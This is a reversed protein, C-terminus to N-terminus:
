EQTPKAELPRYVLKLAAAPFTDGCSPSWECRHSYGESDTTVSIVRMDPGGGKLRVIDNCRFELHDAPFLVAELAAIRPEYGIFQSLEADTIHLDELASLRFDLLDLLDKFEKLKAKLWLSYLFDFVILALLFAFM